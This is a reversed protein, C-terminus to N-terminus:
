LSSKCPACNTMLFGLAVVVQPQPDEKEAQHRFGSAKRTKLHFFRGLPAKKSHLGHAQQEKLAELLRGIPGENAWGAAAAPWRKPSM